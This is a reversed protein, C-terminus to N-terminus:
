SRSESKRAGAYFIRRSLRHVTKDFVKTLISEREGAAKATELTLM